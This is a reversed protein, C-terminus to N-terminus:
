MLFFLNEPTIHFKFYFKLSIIEKSYIRIQHQAHKTLIYDKGKKTIGSKWTSNNIFDSIKKFVKLVEM